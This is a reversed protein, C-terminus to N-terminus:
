FNFYKNPFPEKALTFHWWEKAYPLFGYKIMIKQLLARNEKQKLSIEPYDYNSREGFFDWVGGMDVEQGKKEGELYLLSLDLTSGRSHGSKEAIYGQPVLNRKDLHPYYIQKMVTDNVANIWQMFDDVARQPRYTDFVKICYGLQNFETQAKKLASLAKKTLVVKPYAYGNVVRGMFNEKSAYRIELAINPIEDAIYEFSDPVQASVSLALFLSALLILFCQKM